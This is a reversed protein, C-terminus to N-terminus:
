PDPEGFKMGMQGEKDLAKTIKNQMRKLGVDLDKSYGSSGKQDQLFEHALNLAVMVVLRERSNVKGTARMERLRGNLFDVANLLSEREDDPCAVVYEKDLISVSIPNAKDTM